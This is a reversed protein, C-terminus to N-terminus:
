GIPWPTSTYPHRLLSAIKTARMMILAPHEASLLLEDVHLSENASGM